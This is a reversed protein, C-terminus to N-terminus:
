LEGEEAQDAEREVEENRIITGTRDPKKGRDGEYAESVRRPSSRNDRKFFGYGSGNSNISSESSNTTGASSSGRHSSNSSSSTCNSGGSDTREESPRIATGNLNSSSTSSAKTAYLSQSNSPSRPVESSVGRFRTSVPSYSTPSVPPRSSSSGSISRSSWNQEVSSRRSPPTAPLAKTPSNLPSTFLTGSSSATPSITSISVPGTNSSSRDRASSPLLNVNPRSNRRSQQPSTSTSTSTTSFPAGLRMGEAPLVGTITLGRTRSEDVQETGVVQWDDRTTSSNGNTVGSKTRFFSGIGRSPAVYSSLLTPTHQLTPEGAGVVSDFESARAKEDNCNSISNSRSMIEQGSNPVLGVVETSITNNRFSINFYDSPFGSFLPLSTPSPKSNLIPLYKITFYAELASSIGPVTTRKSDLDSRISDM